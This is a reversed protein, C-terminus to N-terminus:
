EYLIDAKFNYGTIDESAFLAQFVSPHQGFPGKLGSVSILPIRLKLLAYQVFKHNTYVEEIKNRVLQFWKEYIDFPFFYVIPDYMTSNQMGSNSAVRDIGYVTYFQGIVSVHFYLERSYINVEDKVKSLLLKGTYSPDFLPSESSAHLVKSNDGKINKVLRKWMGYAAQENKKYCLEQLLNIGPYEIYQPDSDKIGLPYYRIIEEYVEPYSLRM